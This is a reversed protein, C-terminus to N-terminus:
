ELSFIRSGCRVGWAHGNRTFFELRARIRKDDAPDMGLFRLGGCYVLRLDRQNVVARLQGDESRVTVVSPVGEHGVYRGHLMEPDAFDRGIPVFWRHCTELPLGMVANYLTWMIDDMDEDGCNCLVAFGYGEGLLLGGKTSVGHLGGSHECITHGCKM